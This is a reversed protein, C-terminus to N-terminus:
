LATNQALALALNAAVTSKGEGATVSTVLLVRGTNNKKLRQRNLRRACAFFPRKFSFASWPLASCCGSKKQGTQGAGRKEHPIAALIEADLKHRAGARTQVTDRAISFWGLAAVMAVGALLAATSILKRQNLANSPSTPAQASTLVHLVANQDIYQGLEPYHADVARVMEFATRASSSTASVQLMNTEGVVSASITGPLSEVGLAQCIREQMLESELM